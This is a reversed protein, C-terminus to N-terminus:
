NQAVPWKGNTHRHLGTSAMCIELGDELELESCMNGIDGLWVLASIYAQTGPTYEM